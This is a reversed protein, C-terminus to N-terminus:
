KLLEEVVKLANEKKAPYAAIKFRVHIPDKSELVVNGDAAEQKSLRLYLNCSDDVCSEIEEALRRDYEDLSGLVKETFERIRKQKKVVAKLEILEQTFVGGEEEPELTNEEVETDEPLLEELTGRLEEVDGPSAYATVTVHHAKM